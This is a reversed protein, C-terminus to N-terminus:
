EVRIGAAKVVEAWKAIEAALISGLEEPTSGSAAVGQTAIRERVDPMDLIKRVETTLLAVIGKPTAAPVYLGFTITIESGPYGTEAMTPVDALVPARKSSTVALARLRGTNIQALGTAVTMCGLASEGSVVATMLQAGGKYPIHALDIAARHKFLAGCLHAGSGTGASAYNLQGPRAKALAVLEKISRVPVSPHVVLVYGGSAVRAVPAFDRLVDYPLKSYLAPSAALASSIGMFLTHGDPPSKAAVTTGLSGGAGPRNEIVVPQGVSEALKSGVTRALFDSAGGAPFADIIRLPRNPFTQAHSVSAAIALLCALAVALRLPIPYM